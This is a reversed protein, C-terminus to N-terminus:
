LKEPQKEGMQRNLENKFFLRSETLKKKREEYKEKELHHFAIQEDAKNIEDNLAGIEDILSEKSQTQVTNPNLELRQKPLTKPPPTVEQNKPM